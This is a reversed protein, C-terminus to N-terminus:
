CGGVYEIDAYINISNDKHLKIDNYEDRDEEVDIECEPNRQWLDDMVRLQTLDPKSLVHELLGDHNYIVVLKKLKFDLNQWFGEIDCECKISMDGTFEFTNACTQKMEASFGISLESLKLKMSM